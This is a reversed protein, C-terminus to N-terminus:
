PLKFSESNKSIKKEYKPIFFLFNELISPLRKINSEVTIKLYYTGKELRSIDAVKTPEIHMAWKIADSYNNFRKELLVDRLISKVTFEGKIPDSSMARQIQVNAIFEDPIISWRRYLEITILLNKGLGNKFDEMFEVSPVITASTSVYGGDINVEMKIDEIGYASPIFFLVTMLTIIFLSSFRKIM